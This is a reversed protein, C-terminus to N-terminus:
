KSSMCDFEVHIYTKKVIRADFTSTQCKHLESYYQRLSCVSITNCSSAFEDTLQRQYNQCHSPDYAPFNCWNHGNQLPVDVRAMFARKIRIMKNSECVLRITRPNTEDHYEEICNTVSAERCDTFFFTIINISTSMLASVKPECVSCIKIIDYKILVALNKFLLFFKRVINM